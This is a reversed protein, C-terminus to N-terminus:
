ERAREASLLYPMEYRRLIDGLNLNYLDLKLREYILGKGKEDLPM